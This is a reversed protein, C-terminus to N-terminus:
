QVRIIRGQRVLLSISKPNVVDLTPKEPVVFFSADHGDDLTTGRRVRVVGSDVTGAVVYAGQLDIVSDVPVPRRSTVVRYVTYRTGEDFTTGNYWRGNRWEYVPTESEAVPFPTGRIAPVCGVAFAVFASRIPRWHPM